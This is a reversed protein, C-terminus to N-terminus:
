EEKIVGQFAAMAAARQTQGGDAGVGTNKKPGGKGPPAPARRLESKKPGGQSVDVGDLNQFAKLAAGHQSSSSSKTQFAEKTSVVGKGNLRRMAEEKMSMKPEADEKKQLLAAKAAGVGGGGGGGGGGQRAEDVPDPKSRSSTPLESQRRLRDMAVSHQSPGSPKEQAAQLGKLADSMQSVGSGASTVTQARREAKRELSAIALKHQTPAATAPAATNPDDNIGAKQLQKVVADTGSQRRSRTEDTPAPTVYASGDAFTSARDAVSPRRALPEAPVEAAAPTSEYAAAAAAVSTSTSRTEGVYSNRQSAQQSSPKEWTTEDTEEKWYYIRGDEATVPEWGVELPTEADQEAATPESGAQAATLAPPGPPAPAEPAPAEVPAPAEAAPAAAAPLAEEPAPAEAAPAAPAEEAAAPAEELVIDAAAVPEAPPESAAADYNSSYAPEAPAVPAPDAAVPAAPAPRTPAAEAAPAPAAPTAESERASTSGDDKPKKKKKFLSSVSKTFSSQKRISSTRELDDGGM